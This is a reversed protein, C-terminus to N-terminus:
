AKGDPVCPLHLESAACSFYTLVQVLPAAENRLTRQADFIFYTTINIPLAACSIWYTNSEAPDVKQVGFRHYVIRTAECITGSPDVPPQILRSDRKALSLLVGIYQRLYRRPQPAVGAVIMM